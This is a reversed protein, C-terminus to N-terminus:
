LFLGFFVPSLLTMIVNVNFHLITPIILSLLIEVLPSSLSWTKSIRWTYPLIFHVMYVALKRM